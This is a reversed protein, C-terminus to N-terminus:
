HQLTTTCIPFIAGLPPNSGMGKVNQSLTIIMAGCLNGSLLIRIWVRSKRYQIILMLGDLSESTMVDDVGVQRDKNSLDTYIIVTARKQTLSICREDM